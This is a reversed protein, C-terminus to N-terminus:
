WNGEVRVVSMGVHVNVIRTPTNAFAQSTDLRTACGIGCHSSGDQSPSTIVISRDITSVSFFESEKSILHPPSAQNIRNRYLPPQITFLM